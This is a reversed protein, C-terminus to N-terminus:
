LYGLSCSFHQAWQSWSCIAGGGGGVRVSLSESLVHVLTLRTPPSCVPDIVFSKCRLYKLTQPVHRFLVRELTQHVGHQFLVREVGVAAVSAVGLLLQPGGDRRGFFHGFCRSPWLFPPHVGRASGRKYVRSLTVGGVDALFPLRVGDTLATATTATPSAVALCRLLTFARSTQPPATCEMTVDLSTELLRRLPRTKFQCPARSFILPNERARVM